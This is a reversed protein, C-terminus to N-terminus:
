FNIAHNLAVCINEVRSPVVAVSSKSSARLGKFSKELIAGEDHALLPDILDESWFFALRM